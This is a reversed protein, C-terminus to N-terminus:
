ARAQLHRSVCDTKLKKLSEEGAAIVIEKTSEGPVLGGPYKTDVTFRSAANTHGLLEESTGYARATDIVNIGETELAKLVEEVKEPTSFGSFNNFVAGGFVIKLNTNAM